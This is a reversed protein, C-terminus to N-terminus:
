VGLKAKLLAALAAWGVKKGLGIVEVLTDDMESTEALGLGLGTKFEFHRAMDLLAARQLEPSKTAHLLEIYRTVAISAYASGPLESSNPKIGQWCVRVRGEAYDHDEDVPLVLTGDELCRAVWAGDVEEGIYLPYLNAIFQVVAQSPTPTSM